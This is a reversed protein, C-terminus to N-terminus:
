EDIRGEDVLLQYVKYKHFDPVKGEKIWRSVRDTSTHELKSAVYMKGKDDILKLFLEDINSM